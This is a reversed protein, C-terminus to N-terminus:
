PKPNESLTNVADLFEKWSHVRQVGHPLDHDANHGQHFLFLHPVLGVLPELKHVDDDMYIEIGECAEKKDKGYGVSIYELDFGRRECWQKAVAVEEPSRSTIVVLRHGKSRLEPVVEGVEGIPEMDLGVEPNACVQGMLERYQERTMRGDEVVYSEKFRNSPIGELGFMRKAQTHKLETTDAFVGDFDLGINM